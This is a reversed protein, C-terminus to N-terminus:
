AFRTKHRADSQYSGHNSSQNKSSFSDYVTSTSIQVQSMASAMKNYDFKEREGGGLLNTGAIVSDNNNLAITGKNKTVLMNNGYAM